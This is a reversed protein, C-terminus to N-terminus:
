YIDVTASEHLCWARGYSLGREDKVDSTFEVVFYDPGPAEHRRAPRVNHITVRVYQGYRMDMKNLVLNRSKMGPELGPPIMRHM